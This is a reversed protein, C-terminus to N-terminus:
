ARPRVDDQGTARHLGVVRAQRRRCAGPQAKRALQPEIAAHGIAVRAVLVGAVGEEVTQEPGADLQDGAVDIGILLHRAAGLLEAGAPRPGVDIGAPPEVV